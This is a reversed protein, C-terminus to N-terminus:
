MRGPRPRGFRDYRDRGCRSLAQTEADQLFDKELSETSRRDPNVRRELVVDIKRTRRETRRRDSPYYMTAWGEPWEAVFIGELSGNCIM